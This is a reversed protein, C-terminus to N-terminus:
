SLKQRLQALAVVALAANLGTDRRDGGTRELAQDLTDVTLV